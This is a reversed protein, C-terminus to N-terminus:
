VLRDVIAIGMERTGTSSQGQAIDGTRFGDRISQKVANEIARAETEMGFSYRLM